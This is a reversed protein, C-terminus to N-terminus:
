FHLYIILASYKFSNTLPGSAPMEQDFAVNNLFM